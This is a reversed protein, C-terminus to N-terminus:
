DKPRFRIVVSAKESEDSFREVSFYRQPDGHISCHSEGADCSWNGSIPNAFYIRKYDVHVKTVTELLEGDPGCIESGKRLTLTKSTKVQEIPICKSLDFTGSNDVYSVTNTSAQPAVKPLKEAVLDVLKEMQESTLEASATKAGPESMEGKPGANGQEGPDGKEGRLGRPGADGKEGPDGKDGKTSKTANITAITELRSRLDIIERQAVEVQNQLSFVYWAGAILFGVIAILAAIVEAVPGIRSFM